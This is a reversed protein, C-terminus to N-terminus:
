RPGPAAAAPQVARGSRGAVGAIGSLESLLGRAPPLLYYVRVLPIVTLDEHRVYGAGELERLRGSLVQPSLRRGEGAQGNIVARLDAPCCGEDEDLNALIALDWRHRVPDLRAQVARWDLACERAPGGRPVGAMTDRRRGRWRVRERLGRSRTERM